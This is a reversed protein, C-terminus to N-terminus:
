DGRYRYSELIMVPSADKEEAFVSVTIKTIRKNPTDEQLARWLWRRHLMTTQHQILTAQPLILLGTRIENIAQWGVWAAVTKDRLYVMARIYQTAAKMVATLAISVIALAILVEILTLGQSRGGHKARM